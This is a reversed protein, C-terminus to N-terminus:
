KNKLVAQLLSDRWRNADRDFLGFGAGFGWYCAPIGRQAAAQAVARTWTVRSEFDAEEYAGFEGLYLPRAQSKAWAAAEDFDKTLVAVQAETGRWTEGKWKTSEPVWSAAQHTFHLPEYYHFTVILRRDAAPLKLKELNHVSNWHGPGVIVAREPNTERIVGLLQPIMPNWLEDTLKDHPENLLEFIVEGPRSRFHTAIQKWLGVLRPLHSEPDSDMEGFHHVNIVVSLKHALAQDVAWDIREFFKPDITYPPEAAAHSSWSIPIRVSRLGAHAIKAFYEAKLTLGWEGERPAELANGLNVGRELRKATKFIDEPEAARLTAAFTLTFALLLALPFRSM